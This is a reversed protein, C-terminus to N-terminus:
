AIGARPVAFGDMSRNAAASRESPMPGPPTKIGSVPNRADRHKM